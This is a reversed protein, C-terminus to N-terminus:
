PECVEVRYQLYYEPGFDLETHMTVGKAVSAAGPARRKTLSVRSTISGSLFSSPGRAKALDSITM